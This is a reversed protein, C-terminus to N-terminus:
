PTPSNCVSLRGMLEYPNRAPEDIFLVAHKLQGAKRARRLVEPLQAIGHQAICQRLIARFDGCAICEDSRWVMYPDGVLLDDLFTKLNRQRHEPSPPVYALVRLHFQQEDGDTEDGFRCVLSGDDHLRAAVETARRRWDAPRAQPRAELRDRWRWSVPWDECFDREVQEDQLGAFVGLDERYSTWDRQACLLLLPALVEVHVAREGRHQVSSALLSLQEGLTGGTPVDPVPELSHQHQVWCRRLQPQTGGQPLDLEAYIRVPGAPPAPGAQAPALHPQLLADAQLAAVVAAATAQMPAGSDLLAAQSGLWLLQVLAARARSRDGQDLAWLMLERLGAFRPAQRADSDAVLAALDQWRSLPLGLGSVRPEWAQVCQVRQWADRLLDGEAADGAPTALEAALDEVTGGRAAEALRGLLAPSSGLERWMYRFFPVTLGARKEQRVFEEHTKEDGALRAAVQVDVLLDLVPSALLQATLHDIGQFEIEAYVKQAVLAQLHQQQRGADQVDHVHRPGRPAAPAARAVFLRKRHYLALWAEWQTYTLPRAAAGVHAALLPVREALDPHLEALAQVSAAPADDGCADGVLHIVADCRRIYGDLKVLTPVGGAKFDEQIKVSVDPRTLARRLRDRYTDFESSTASIFFQVEM